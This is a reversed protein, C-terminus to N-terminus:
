GMKVQVEGYNRAILTIQVEETRKSGRHNKVQVSRNGIDAQVAESPDVSISLDRSQLQLQAGDYKTTLSPVEYGKEAHIIESGTLQPGYETVLDRQEGKLIERPVSLFNYGKAVVSEEQKCKNVNEDRAADYFILSDTTTRYRTMNDMGGRRAASLDTHTTVIEAFNVTYNTSEAQAEITYLDTASLGAALAGTKLVDRRNIEAM